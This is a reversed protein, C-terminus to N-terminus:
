VDKMIFVTAKGEVSVKGDPLCIEGAMEYINRKHSIIRSSITLPQEIPTQERYRLEMRATVANLGKAYLYRVMTEDLLTSLIGGHVICNYSQHEPGATFHAHSAQSVRDHMAGSHQREHWVLPARSLRAYLADAVGSRVRVGVNRELIRGPGHLAWTAMSVLGIAGVWVAARGAAGAGGQQLGNIAQAALWPVALRLAQSATLLAAAGLLALRAGEAFRWIGGYLAGLSAGPVPLSASM